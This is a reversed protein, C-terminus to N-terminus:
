PLSSSPIHRLDKSDIKPESASWHSRRTGVLGGLKKPNLGLERARLIRADSLHFRKGAEIWRLYKEPIQKAM